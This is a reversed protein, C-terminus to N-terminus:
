RMCRPARLGGRWSRNCLRGTMGAGPRLVRLCARVPAIAAGASFARSPFPTGLPCHHAIPRGNTVATRGCAGSAVIRVRPHGIFSRAVRRTERHQHLTAIGSVIRAM